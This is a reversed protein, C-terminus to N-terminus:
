GEAGEPQAKPDRSQEAPKPQPGARDERVRVPGVSAKRQWPWQERPLVRRLFEKLAEPTRELESAVDNLSKGLDGKQLAWDVAKRSQTTTWNTMGNARQGIRSKVPM